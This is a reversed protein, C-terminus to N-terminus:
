GLSTHAVQGLSPRCQCCPTKMHVGNFLLPVLLCYWVLALSRLMDQSVIGIKFEFSQPKPPCQSHRHLGDALPPTLLQDWNYAFSAAHHKCTYGTVGWLLVLLCNSYMGKFCLVWQLSAACM